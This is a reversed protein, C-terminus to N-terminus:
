TELHMLRCDQLIKCSLKDSLVDQLFGSLNGSTTKNNRWDKCSSGMSGPLSCITTALTIRVEKWRILVPWLAIVQVSPLHIPLPVPPLSSDSFSVLLLHDVSHTWLAWVLQRPPLDLQMQKRIFLLPDRNYIKSSSAHLVHNYLDV